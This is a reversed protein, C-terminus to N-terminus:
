RLKRLLTYVYEVMQLRHGRLLITDEKQAEFQAPNVLWVGALGLKDLLVIDETDSTFLVQRGEAEGIVELVSELKIPFYYYTNDIVLSGNPGSEFSIRADPLRLSGLAVRASEQAINYNSFLPQLAGAITPIDHNTSSVDIVQVARVEESNGVRIVVQPALIELWDRRHASNLGGLELVLFHKYPKITVLQITVKIILKLWAPASRPYSPYDFVTIPLSFEAEPLEVNRRTPYKTRLVNYVVERVVSTQGTGIIAIITPAHKRLTLATLSKLVTRLTNRLFRFM